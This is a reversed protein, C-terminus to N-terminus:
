ATQRCHMASGVAEEALICSRFNEAPPLTNCSTVAAIEPLEGAKGKGAERVDNIGFEDGEIDAALPDDLGGECLEAFADGFSFGAEGAEVGYGIKKAALFDVPALQALEHPQQTFKSFLFIASNDPGPM